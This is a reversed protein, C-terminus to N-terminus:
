MRYVVLVAITKFHYTGEELPKSLSLVSVAKIRKGSKIRRDRMLRTGVMGSQQREM